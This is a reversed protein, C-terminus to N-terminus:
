PERLNESVAQNRSDMVSHQMIDESFLEYTNGICVCLVHHSDPMISTKMLKATPIRGGHTFLDSWGVTTIM